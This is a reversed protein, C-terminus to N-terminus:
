HTEAWNNGIKYEGTLLVNFKLREGAETMALVMQKGVLDALDPTTEVQMEDHFNGVDLVESELRNTKRWDDFITWAKKM